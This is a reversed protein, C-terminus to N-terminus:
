IVGTILKSLQSEENMRRINEEVTASNYMFRLENNTLKELEKLNHGKNLYHSITSFRWDGM